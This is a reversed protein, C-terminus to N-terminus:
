CLQALPSIKIFTMRFPKGKEYQECLREAGMGRQRFIKMNYKTGSHAKHRQQKQKLVLMFLPFCNKDNNTVGSIEAANASLSPNPPFNCQHVHEHVHDHVDVTSPCIDPCPCPSTSACACACACACPQDHGDCLCIFM